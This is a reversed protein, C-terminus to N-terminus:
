KQIRVFGYEEFHKVAENFFDSANSCHEGIDELTQKADSWRRDSCDDQVTDCFWVQNQWADFALNIIYTDRPM